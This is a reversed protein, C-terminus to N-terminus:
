KINLDYVSKRLARNENELGSIRERFNRNEKALVDETTGEHYNDVPFRSMNNLSNHQHLQQYQQQQPPTTTTTTAAAAAAIEEKNGVEEEAKGEELETARKLNLQKHPFAPFLGCPKLEGTFSV